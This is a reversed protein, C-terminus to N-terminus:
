GSCGESQSLDAPPSRSVAAFRLSHRPFAGEALVTQACYPPGHAACGRAIKPEWLRLGSGCPELEWRSAPSTWTPCSVCPHSRQSPRGPFHSDGTASLAAQRPDRGWAWGLCGPACSPPKPYFTAGPQTSLLSQVSKQLVTPGSWKGSYKTCFGFEKRLGMPFINESKQRPTQELTSQM